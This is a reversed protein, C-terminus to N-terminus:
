AGGGKAQAAAVHKDYLRLQRQMEKQCMKIVRSATANYGGYVHGGELISVVVSFTNLTSHARAAEAIHYTKSKM